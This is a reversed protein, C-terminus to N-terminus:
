RIVVTDNPYFEPVIESGDNRLSKFLQSVAQDFSGFFYANAQIEQNLNTEWVASWKSKSDWESLLKRVTTGSRVQWMQEVILERGPGTSYVRVPLGHSLQQGIELPTGALHGARKHFMNEADYILKMGSMQTLRQFESKLSSPSVQISIEDSFVVQKYEPEEVLVAAKPETNLALHQCGGLMASAMLVILKVKM